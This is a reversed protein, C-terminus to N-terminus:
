VSKRIEVLAKLEDMARLTHEPWERMPPLTLLLDRALERQADDTTTELIQVLIGHIRRDALDVVDESDAM